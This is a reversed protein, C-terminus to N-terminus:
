QSAPKGVVFFVSSAQLKQWWRTPHYTTPRATLKCLLSDVGTLWETNFTNLKLLAALRSSTPFVCRHRRQVALSAGTVIQEFIHLPIGREHRTLGPRKRRWDGMSVIPERLLAHGGPKLVRALENVVVTVNPVHHLAGLCTILDFEGDEAPLRGSPQPRRYEVPTGDIDTVPYTAPEIVVLQDARSAIPRLEEGNAGGFSLVKQFRKGAPLYRFGHRRNLAHYDYFGAPRAGAGLEFYSQSEDAFWAAIGAPPLDDGYLKNGAFYEADDAPASGRAGPETITAAM